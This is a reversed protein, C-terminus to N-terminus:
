RGVPGSGAEEQWCLCLGDHIFCMTYKVYHKSIDWPIGSILYSSASKSHKNKWKITNHNCQLTLLFLYMMMMYLNIPNIETM